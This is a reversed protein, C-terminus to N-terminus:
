FVRHLKSFFRQLANRHDAPKLPVDPNASGPEVLAEPIESSTLETDKEKGTRTVIVVEGMLAGVRLTVNARGPVTLNKEVFSSFGSATVTLGYSGAPLDPLALGGNSDAMLDRHQGTKANVLAVAAGPLVAGSPDRVELTLGELASQMQVSSVGNQPPTASSKAPAITVLAALAAAAIRASRQVPAPIGEPCDETLMM